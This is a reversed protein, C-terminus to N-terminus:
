SLVMGRLRIASTSTYIYVNKVETSSQPSHVAERGPRKIGPSLVESVWQIPPQIPELAPGSVIVPLFLGLGQLSDFGPRGAWLTTASQDAM